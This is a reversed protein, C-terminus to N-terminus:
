PFSIDPEPCWFQDLHWGMPNTISGQDSAGLFLGWQIVNKGQALTGGSVGAVMGSAVNKLLFCGAFPAHVDEAKKIEWSQDATSCCPPIDRVVVQVGAQTWTGGLSLGALQPTTSPLSNGIFTSATAVSGGMWNQDRHDKGDGTNQWVIINRGSVIRCGFQTSTCGGSVGLFFTGNRTDLNRWRTASAPRALALGSTVVFLGVAFKAVSRM